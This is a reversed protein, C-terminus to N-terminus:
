FTYIIISIIIGIVLSMIVNLNSLHVTMTEIHRQTERGLQADEFNITLAFSYM